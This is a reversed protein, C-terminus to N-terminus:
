KWPIEASPDCFQQPQRDGRSIMWGLDKPLNSMSTDLNQNSGLSPRWPGEPCGTRTDSWGRQLDGGRGRVRFSFARAGEEKRMKGAPIQVCQQTERSGEWRLIQLMSASNDQKNLLLLNILSYLSPPPGMGVEPSGSAKMSEPTLPQTGLTVSARCTQGETGKSVPNEVMVCYGLVCTIRSLCCNISDCM